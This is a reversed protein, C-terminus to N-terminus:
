PRDFWTRVIRVLEHPQELHPAHGAEPVLRAEFRPNAEALRRNSDAYRADLSGAVLLAPVPCTALRQGLPPQRGPSLAELAAALSRPDGQLRRALMAGFSPHGSLGRFLPGAYWGRLWVRFPLRRLALARSADLERREAREREGELGTGAGIVVARRVLEPRALMLSFALRGGLSYALLDCPGQGLARARGALWDTAREFADEVPGEIWPEGGHGPLDPAATRGPWELARLVEDWDAGCGLFGHLLLLPVSV